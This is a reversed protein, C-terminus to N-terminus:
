ARLYPIFLALPQYLLATNCTIKKKERPSRAMAEGVLDSVM